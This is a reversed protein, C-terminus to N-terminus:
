EILCLGHLFSALTEGVQLEIWFSGQCMRFGGVEERTKLQFGGRGREQVLLKNGTERCRAMFVFVKLM